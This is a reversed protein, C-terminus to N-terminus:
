IGGYVSAIRVCRQRTRHSHFCAVESLMMIIRFLWSSDQLLLLGFLLKSRKFNIRLKYDSGSGIIFTAFGGRMESSRYGSESSDEGMWLRSSLIWLEGHGEGMEVYMTM